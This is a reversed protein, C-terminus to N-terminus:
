VSSAARGDSALAQLPPSSSSPPRIEPSMAPPGIPEVPGCCSPLGKSLPPPTPRVSAAEDGCSGPGNESPVAPSSIHIPPPLDNSETTDLSSGRAARPRLCGRLASPSMRQLWTLFDLTVLAMMIPWYIQDPLSSWFTAASESHQWMCGAIGFSEICYASLFLTGEEVRVLTVGQGPGPGRPTGGRSRHLPLAARAAPLWWPAHADM